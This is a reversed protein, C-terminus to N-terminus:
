RRQRDRHTGRRHSAGRLQSGVVRFAPRSLASRFAGEGAPFPVPHRGRSWCTDTRPVVFVTAPRLAEGEVAKEVRLATRRGLVEPLHFPEQVARHQVRVIAAPFDAPLAALIRSVAEIGGASAALGVVKFSPPSPPPLPQQSNTSETM